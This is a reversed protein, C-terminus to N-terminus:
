LKLVDEAPVVALSGDHTWTVVAGEVVMALARTLVGGEHLVGSPPQDSARLVRLLKGRADQERQFAATRRREWALHKAPDEGPGLAGKDIADMERRAALVAALAARILEPNSSTKKSM